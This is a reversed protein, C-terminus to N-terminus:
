SVGPSAKLNVGLIGWKRSASTKLRYHRRRACGLRKARLEGEYHGILGASLLRENSWTKGGNDTYDMMMMSETETDATLGTELKVILDHHFLKNGDEGSAEGMTWRRVIEEGAEDLINMSMEYIAGNEYDGVLNKGSFSVFWNGRHRGSEPFSAMKHWLNTKLNLAFTKGETPFVLVYFTQGFEIYGYARADDLTTMQDLQYSMFADNVIQPTYGSSRVVLKEGTRPDFSLWIPTNDLVLASAPALIGHEIFAGSIREIPFAAAGSNYFPETTEAGFLWVERHSTLTRLVNDPRGEASAFDLAAWVSGTYLGSIGFQQTDPDHGIFYGDLFSLSGPYHFDTDTIQAFIGTSITYIYGYTGDFVAVELGNDEIYCVGSSTLLTGERSMTGSTSVSYFSDGFVCYLVGKVVRGCRGEGGSSSTAFVSLGPTGYVGEMMGAGRQEAVLFFNQDDELMRAQYKANLLPIKPM